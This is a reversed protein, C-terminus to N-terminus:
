IAGNKENKLPWHVEEDYDSGVRCTYGLLDQQFNVKLFQSIKPHMYLIFIARLADGGARNGCVRICEVFKPLISLIFLHSGMLPGHLKRFYQSMDLPAHFSSFALTIM